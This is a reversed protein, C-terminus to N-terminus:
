RSRKTHVTRRGLNGALVRSRMGTGEDLAVDPTGEILLKGSAKRLKSSMAKKDIGM